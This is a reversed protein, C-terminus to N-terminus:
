FLKLFTRKKVLKLSEASYNTVEEEIFLVLVVTKFFNPLKSWAIRFGTFTNYGLDPQGLTDFFEGEIVEMYVKDGKSLKLIANNTATQYEVSSGFGSVIPKDNLKLYLRFTM